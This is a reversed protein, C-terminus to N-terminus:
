TFELQEKPELTTIEKMLIGFGSGPILMKM